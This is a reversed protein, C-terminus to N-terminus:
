VTIRIGSQFIFTLKEEATTEVRDVKIQGTAEFHHLTRTVANHEFPSIYVTKVGGSVLGQIIINLAVTASPTFVVQKAPCHLLNQIRKRTDAILEGASQALEYHGRGANAGNQRYFTDMFTYVADPKPYTTAANDFYAM